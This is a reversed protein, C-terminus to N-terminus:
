RWTPAEQALGRWARAPHLLGPARAHASPADNVRRGTARVRRINATVVAWDPMGGEATGWVVRRVRPRASSSIQCTSTWPRALLNLAAPTLYFNSNLVAPMGATRAWRTSPPSSSRSAPRPDGGIFCVSRAGEDQRPRPRAGGTARAHGRLRRLDAPLRLQPASLAPRAPAAASSSPTPRQLPAEEGMHVM